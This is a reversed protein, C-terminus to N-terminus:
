LWFHYFFETSEVKYGCKEYLNCAPNNEGQTVVQGLEYGNLLFWEQAARVLIEGYGRGRYEADVAILGIDGREGKSGLTVMGAVKDGDRILLVESAIEKNLSRTIWIKYLEVFKKNSLKPDVSFRSYKGSQIALNEIDSVSMDRSFVEVIDTSIFSSPNLTLFNTTYTVKKDALFGDTDDGLEFSVEGNSPWYVLKFGEEKMTLLLKSLDLSSLEGENIRGVKMGFFSSDWELVEYRM